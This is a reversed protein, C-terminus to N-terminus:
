PLAPVSASSDDTTTDLWDTVIELLADPRSATSAAFTGMVTQPGNLGVQFWWRGGVFHVGFVQIHWDSNRCTVTQGDVAAFWEDAPTVEFPAACAASGVARSASWMDM